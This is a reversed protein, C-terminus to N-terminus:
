RKASLRKIEVGIVYYHPLFKLIESSMDPEIEKEGCFRFFGNQEDFWYSAYLVLPIFKGEEFSNIKFPRHSYHYHRSSDAIKLPRLKLMRNGSRMEEVTFKIKQVSDSNAPSVGITIKESQRVIGKELDTCLGEERLEKQTEESFETLMMRNNSLFGRDKSEIEKGNVFEKIRFRISYTDDLFDKIDFSYVMYGADNLLKIYDSFDAEQPKVSQASLNQMFAALIITLIYNIKSM